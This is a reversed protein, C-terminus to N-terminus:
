GADDGTDDRVYLAACWLGLLWWFLLGWWASYFALHTNLPFLTVALAVSAPFAVERAKTTVGRWRRWGLVVAAMWVLLGLTGTNTAVELVVQHPHCAGEGKGCSEDVVFHDDHPAFDPYAYRFDRVGVGNVPHALYMRWAVDWIDLRGSLATNVGAESGSFAELSQEARAHFRPSYQWALAGALAAVVCASACWLAFRGVGRSEHWAFALGVLGYTLWGARSGALLIPGLMFGFALILGVRQWRRGAVWLVLPSLSALVPGLKMNDAGFIGTVRLEQASGGLSYGTLAQVWADLTWLAVVVATATLLQELRSRRRVAFCLYLGLPVYRLYGAVSLWSRGARLADPASMLAAVFYAAWLWLLLRAGPHGSLADPDRVFLLVTGILCVLTGLESSRGIPLLFIVLWIPFLPSRLAAKVSAM